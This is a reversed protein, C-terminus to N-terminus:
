DRGGQVISAVEALDGAGMDWSAAAANAAVQDPRTAGAIVSAIAPQAALWGFALELLTHGTGSAFRSLAEVRDFNRDSLVRVVRETPMAGLRTGPPPDQGREYKGTLLGSALPFYPLLGLGCRVCAPVVEELPDQHLVNFHNQASVFPTVEQERAVGDAEEIQEGSFNSNGIERIKGERVLRDLAELTEQVPVSPDPGHQQYLDIHDTGLRRLSGEVAQAIWRASAGRHEPDHDIPASFKTAIVVQDRLGALVKGLYEESRTEGYVDATDFFTIGTDLAAHVVAKTRDQDCRTGFNNCGLGVLSVDLSGLKRTQM